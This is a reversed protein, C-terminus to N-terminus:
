QSADSLGYISVCFLTVILIISSVLLVHTVRMRRRAVLVQAALDNPLADFYDVYGPLLKALDPTQFQFSFWYYGTNGARDGLLRYVSYANWHWFLGILVPIPLSWILLVREISM